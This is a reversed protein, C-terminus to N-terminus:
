DPKPALGAGCLVQINEVNTSSGGHSWPIIHDFALDTQAGCEVCRGGDRRMAEAKVDNPIYRGNRKRPGKRPRLVERVLLEPPEIGAKEEESAEVELRKTDFWCGMVAYAKRRREIREARNSIPESMVEAMKRDVRDEWEAYKKSDAMVSMPLPINYEHYPLKKIDEAIKRETEEVWSPESYSEAERIKRAQEEGSKEENHELFWGVIVLVVFVCVGVIDV